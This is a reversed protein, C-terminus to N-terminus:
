YTQAQAKGQHVELASAALAEMESNQVFTMVPAIFEVMETIGDVFIDGRVMGGTLVIADVKGKLAAALSGIYKGINYIMANYVLTFKENGAEIEEEIHKCDNTGLHALLGGSRTIMKGAQAESLENKLAYRYFQLATLGGTREPTFPGEGQLANNVDVVKGKEHAGISIGGGAHMVILNVEDYAKGLKAAAKKAVAKQNLAHFISLRPLDPHGSIRAVDCLEDVVVPDAIFANKGQSEALGQAIPAGLNSAHHGFKCSALDELMAQNVTFVGGPIPRLLGGRGVFIDIDELKIKHDQLCKLAVDQRYQRQDSISEFQEIEARPHKLEDEFIIETGKFLAIKTSTSGPNIVFITPNENM